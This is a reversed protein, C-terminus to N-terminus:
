IVQDKPKRRMQIWETHFIGERDLREYTNAGFFDRQAHLLNHPLRDSRYGDYYNL